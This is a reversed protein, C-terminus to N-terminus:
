VTLVFGPCNKNALFLHSPNKGVGKPYKDSLKAVKMPGYPNIYYTSDDSAAAM